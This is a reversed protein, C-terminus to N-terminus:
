VVEPAPPGYNTKAVNLSILGDDRPTMTAIWRLGDTIGTVGRAATADKVRARRADQSTHHAIMVAPNGPVQTLTELATVAATALANDAEAGKGALRSFPEVIVLAWGDTPAKTSLTALLDAHAANPKGEP